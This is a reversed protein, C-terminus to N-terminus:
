ARESVTIGTAPSPRPRRRVPRAAAPAPDVRDVAFVILFYLLTIPNFFNGTGQVPQYMGYVLLYILLMRARTSRLLTFVGALWAALVGLTLVGYNAAWQLMLNHAPVDIKDFEPLEMVLMSGHGLLWHREIFSTFRDFIIARDESVTLADERGFAAWLAIPLAAAFGVAILPGLARLGRERVLGYGYALVLGVIAARSQSLLLTVVAVAMLLMDRKTRPQGLLLIFAAVWLGFGVRSDSLGHYSIDVFTVFVFMIYLSPDVAMTLLPALLWVAFYAKFLKLLMAADARSVHERVLALYLNFLVFFLAMVLTEFPVKDALTASLSLLTAYLLPPMVLRAPLDRQARLLALAVTGAVIVPTLGSSLVRGLLALLDAFMVNPGSPDGDPALVPFLVFLLNLGFLGFLSPRM